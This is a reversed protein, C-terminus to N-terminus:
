SASLVIAEGLVFQNDRNDSRLIPGIARKSARVDDEVSDGRWHVDRNEVKIKRTIWAPESPSKSHSCVLKGMVNENPSM